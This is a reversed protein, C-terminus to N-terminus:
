HGLFSAIFRADIHGLELRALQEAQRSAGEIVLVRQGQVSVTYRRVSQGKPLVGPVEGLKDM